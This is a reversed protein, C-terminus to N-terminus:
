TGNEQTQDKVSEREGERETEIRREKNIESETPSGSKIKVLSM